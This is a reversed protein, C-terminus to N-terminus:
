NTENAIYPVVYILTIGFSIIVYLSTLLTGVAKWWNGENQFQELIKAHRGNRLFLVWVLALLGASTSIGMTPNSFHYTVDGGSCLIIILSLSVINMFLTWAVGMAASFPAIDNGIFEFLRFLKYYLYNLPNM